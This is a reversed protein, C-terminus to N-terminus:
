APKYLGALQGGFKMAETMATADILEMVQVEAGTGSAMVVMEAAALKTPDHAGSCLIVVESTTVSFYLNLVTMGLAAFMSKIAESRDSPQTLM